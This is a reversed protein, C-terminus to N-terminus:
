LFLEPERRAKCNKYLTNAIERIKPLTFRIADNPCAKVCTCCATCRTADVTVIRGMTIAATPCHAACEGCHRCHSPDVEPAINAPGPYPGQPLPGPLEVPALASLETAGNLKTKVSAGFQRAAAKDNEDPRGAAIPTELGSFSHEGLLAAGAIVVFGSAEVLAKLEALAGDYHRNGYVVVIVAPTGEGKIAKLREAAVPAVRGAYVPAGILAVGKDISVQGSPVGTPLTLDWSRTIPLALGSAVQELTTFTTRTPSYCILHATDFNM